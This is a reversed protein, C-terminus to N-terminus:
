GDEATPKTAAATTTPCTAYRSPGNPATTATTPYATAATCAATEAARALIWLLYLKVSSRYACIFNSCFFLFQFMLLSMCLHVYIFDCHISVDVYWRICFLMLIKEWLYIILCYLNLHHMCHLPQPLASCAPLDRTQNGITDNSNKMSMIRGAASPGQPRSLRWCFHTGPISGPPLPLWHTPSVVKM